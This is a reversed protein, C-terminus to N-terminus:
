TLLIALGVADSGPFPLATGPTFVWAGAGFYVLFLGLAHLAVYLPAGSVGHVPTGGRRGALVDSAIRLLFPTWFLLHAVYLAQKPMPSEPAPPSPTRCRPM